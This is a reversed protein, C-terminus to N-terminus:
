FSHCASLKKKAGFSFSNAINATTGFSYSIDIGLKKQLLTLKISRRLINFIKKLKGRRAKLNLDVVKLGAIDFAIDEMSFVVIVAERSEKLARATMVCIREFGGQHLMPTILMIRKNEM